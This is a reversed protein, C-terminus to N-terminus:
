SNATATLTYAAALKTVTWEYTKFPTNGKVLQDTYTADGTSGVGTEAVKDELKEVFNLVALVSRMTVLDTDTAKTITIKRRTTYAARGVASTSAKNDTADVYFASYTAGSASVVINWESQAFPDAGGVKIGNYTGDAIEESQMQAIKHCLAKYAEISVASPPANLILNIAPLYALGAIGKGM